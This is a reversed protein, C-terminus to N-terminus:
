GIRGSRFWDITQALGQELSFQPEWKLTTRIHEINLCRRSINDIDRRDIRKIREEKGLIKFIKSALDRVSIEVGAAINYIRGEAKPMVAAMITASVCDDIFTFDRTQLGSGFITIEDGKLASGIFKGIVGCYPNKPSQLPGYVNSYRVVTVPLDHLLFYTMAYNEGALKSVAYYSMPKLTSRELIPLFDPNGYVSATSTYVIKKVNGARKATELLQLTGLANVQLDHQPNEQAAMINVCACNIIYDSKPVLEELLKQDNISGKIFTVRDSKPLHSPDGTFLNDVVFVHKVGQRVLSHVLNSGIFGCGGPILFTSKSFDFALM